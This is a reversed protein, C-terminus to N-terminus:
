LLRGEAFVEKNIETVNYEKLIALVQRLATLQEYTVYKSFLLYSDRTLDLKNEAESM